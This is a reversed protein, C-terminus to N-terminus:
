LENRYAEVKEFLVVTTAEELDKAVKKMQRSTKNMKYILIYTKVEDIIVAVVISVVVTLIIVLTAFLLSLSGVFLFEVM